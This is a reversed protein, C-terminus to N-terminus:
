LAHAPGNCALRGSARRDTRQPMFLEAKGLETMTLPFRSSTVPKCCEPTIPRLPRKARIAPFRLDAYLVASAATITV